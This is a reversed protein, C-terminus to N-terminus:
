GLALVVLTQNHFGTVGRMRAIEGYTYFGAVPAGNAHAEVRAIEAAIGADGLVARRAACDFVVMGRPAAGDLAAIADVCAADTAALVSEVDGTMLRVLAGPPVEAVTVLSRTEFDASPIWRVQEEGARRAMGLPHVVAFQIFAERDERADAPANLRDLYVDLAPLDDLTNVRNATSDTVLMPEGVADWGHRVGIGIPADSGIAASVVADRLVQGDFFQHTATMRMDDGACGGVLPVGAGVVSHAGRVLEQQDGALGDSLLMLVQHPMSAVDALATAASAGAERPEAGLGTACRTAAIFGEGGLAFAVVGADGPGGGAIEGATSCGVLPAGAALEHARAVLAELDLAESAFLVVLKALRGQLAAELAHEAAEVADQSSARGVGVWRSDNNM